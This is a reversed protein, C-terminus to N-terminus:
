HMIENIISNVYQELNDFEDVDLKRVYEVIIDNLFSSDDQVLQQLSLCMQQKTLLM